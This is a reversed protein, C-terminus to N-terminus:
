KKLVYVQNNLSQVMTLRDFNINVFADIAVKPRFIVNEDVQWLYDDIGMIGGSKLLRFSLACDLLTDATGHSGDVYIFDFYDKFGSGLLKSLEIDSLGKHVVLNVKQSIQTQAEEINSNFRKEVEHLPIHDSLKKSMHDEGGGWSDIAHIEIGPNDGLAKILYCISAGEYSGIELIKRPKIQPLLLSWVERASENFWSNSFTM